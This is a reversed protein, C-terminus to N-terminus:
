PPVIWELLLPVNSESLSAKQAAGVCSPNQTDKETDSQTGNQTKSQGKNGTNSQRSSEQSQEQEYFNKLLEYIKSAAELAGYCTSPYPLLIEKVKLLADAFEEVDSMVLNKPYRITSLICNLLRSVKDLDGGTQKSKMRSSYRDFFYYKTCGLFNAFGPREEGCLMEIREDEIINFLDAIIRNSSNAKIGETTYLLHCGEHITLGTFIDIIEGPTLKEDDFMDTAVNVVKHDTYSGDPSLRIEVKFPANMAVIMDKAHQYAVKHLDEKNNVSLMAESYATGKPLIEEWGIRGSRRVSTFNDGNRQLFDKCIENVKDQTTM